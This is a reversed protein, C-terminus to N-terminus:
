AFFVVLVQRIARFGECDIYSALLGLGSLKFTIRCSYSTNQLCFRINEINRAQVECGSPRSTIPPFCLILFILSFSTPHDQFTRLRHLEHTTWTRFTQPCESLKLPGYLDLVQNESIESSNQRNKPGYPSDRSVRVKPGHHAM